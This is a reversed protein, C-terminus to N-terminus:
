LPNVADFAKSIWSEKNAEPSLGDNSVLQYADRYWESQPYNTGLVAAATQAESVVGLAMYGETLRYLAEPTQSTNRFDTVVKKFRNIGALYAGQRYYYRGVEMEKGALHDRAVLVKAAADQAYATGPFRQSVEELAALAKLTSSQDHRTNGIQDYNCVAVLYYAYGVDKGGPHLTIYRNAANVADDWKGLRYGIYAQMLIAQTAYSSYPYQREVEGFQKMASKLSNSNLEALAENYLKAVAATEQASAMDPAVATGATGAASAAPTDDGWIGDMINTACGSLLVAVLAAAIGQSVRRTVQVSFGVQM